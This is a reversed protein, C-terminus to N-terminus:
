TVRFMPFPYAVYRTTGTGAAQDKRPLTERNGEEGRSHGITVLCRAPPHANVAPTPLRRGVVHNRCQLAPRCEAGQVDNDGDNEIGKDRKVPM